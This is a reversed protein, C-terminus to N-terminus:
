VRDTGGQRCGRVGHDMRFACRGPARADQGIGYEFGLRGTTLVRRTVLGSKELRRLCQALSKQSLGSVDRRIAYFRRRHDHDCVSGQVHITWKDALLDLLVRDDRMRKESSSM